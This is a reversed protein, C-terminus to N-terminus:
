RSPQAMGSVIPKASTTPARTEVKNEIKTEVKNGGKPESKPRAVGSVVSSPTLTKSGSATTKETGSSPVKPSSVDFV